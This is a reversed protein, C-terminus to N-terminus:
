KKPWLTDYAVFLFLSLIAGAPVAIFKVFFYGLNEGFIFYVGFTLLSGIVITGLAIVLIYKM